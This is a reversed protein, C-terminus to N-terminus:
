LRNGATIVLHLHNYYQTQIMLGVSSANINMCYMEPIKLHKKRRGNLDFVSLVKTKQIIGQVNNLTKQKM